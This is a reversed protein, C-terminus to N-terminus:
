SAQSSFCGIENYEGILTVPGSRMLTGELRVGCSFEGEALRNLDFVIRNGEEPFIRVIVREPDVTVPKSMNFIMTSYNLFFVAESFYSSPVISRDRCGMTISNDNVNRSHGLELIAAAVTPTRVVLSFVLSHLILLNAFTHAATLKPIIRRISAM